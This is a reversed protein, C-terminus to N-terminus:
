LHYQLTSYASMRGRGKMSNDLIMAPRANTEEAIGVVIGEKKHFLVVLCVTLM